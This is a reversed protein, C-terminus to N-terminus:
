ICIGFFRYSPNMLLITVQVHGCPCQKKKKELARPTVSTIKNGVHWVPVKWWGSRKTHQSRIFWLIWTVSSSTQPTLWSFFSKKSWEFKATKWSDDMKDICCVCGSTNNKQRWANHRKRLTLCTLLGWIERSGPM